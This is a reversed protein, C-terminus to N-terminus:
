ERRRKSSSRDLSDSSGSLFRSSEINKDEQGYSSRDEEKSIAFSNTERQEQPNGLGTPRTDFSYKKGFSGYSSSGSYDPSNSKNFGYSVGKDEKKESPLNIKEATSELSESSFEMKEGSFESSKWDDEEFSERYPNIPISQKSEEKKDEKKEAPKQPIVEKKVIAKKLIETLEKANIKLKHRKTM